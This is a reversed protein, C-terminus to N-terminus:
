RYVYTTAWPYDVGGVNNYGTVVYCTGAQPPFSQRLSVITNTGATSNNINGCIGAMAYDGDSFSTSFNIAYLGTGNDSVSNVNYTDSISITGQGNWKVWAGIGGGGILGDVYDKRAIHGSATPTAVSVTGSFSGTGGNVINQSNDIVNTGSIQISM